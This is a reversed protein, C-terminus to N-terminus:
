DSSWNATGCCSFDSTTAITSLVRLAITTYAASSLAAVDGVWSAQFARSTLEWGYRCRSQRAAPREVEAAVLPAKRPEAALPTHQQDQIPESGALLRM